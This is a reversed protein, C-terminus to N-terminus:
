SGDKGNVKIALLDAIQHIKLFIRSIEVCVEILRLFIFSTFVDMMSFIAVM